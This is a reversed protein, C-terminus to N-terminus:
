TVAPATGVPTLSTIVLQYGNGAVGPTASRLAVTATYQNGNDTVLTFNSSAASDGVPEVSGAAPLNGTLNLTSTSLAQFGLTLKTAIESLNQLAQVTTGTLVQLNGGIDGGVSPITGASTSISNNVQNYTVQEAYLGALPQFNSSLVQLVGQNDIFANVGM